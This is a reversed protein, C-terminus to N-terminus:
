HIFNHPSPRFGDRDVDWCRCGTAVLYMFINKKHCADQVRIEFLINRESERYRPDGHRVIGFIHAESTRDAMCFSCLSLWQPFAFSSRRFVAENDAEFSPECLPIPHHLNSVLELGIPIYM